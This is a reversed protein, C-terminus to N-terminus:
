GKLLGALKSFRDFTFSENPGAPLSEGPGPNLSDATPADDTEQANTEVGASASQKAFSLENDYWGSQRPETTEKYDADFHVLRAESGDIFIAIMKSGYETTFRSFASDPNSAIGAERITRTNKTYYDSGPITVFDFFKTDDNDLYSLENQESWENGADVSLYWKDNYKRARNDDDLLSVWTGRSIANFNIKWANLAVNNEGEISEYGIAGSVGESQMPPPVVEAVEEPTTETEPQQQRRRQPRSGTAGEDALLSAATNPGVAGDAEIEYKRQLLLVAAETKGGFDGDPEGLNAIAESDTGLRVILAEQLLRVRTGKSGRKLVRGGQTAIATLMAQEQATLTGGAGTATTSPTGSDSTAAPTGDAASADEEDTESGLNVDVEPVPVEEGTATNGAELNSETAAVIWTKAIGRDIIDKLDDSAQVDEPQIGGDIQNWIRVFKERRNRQQRATGENGDGDDDLLKTLKAITRESSRWNLFGTRETANEVAEDLLNMEAEIIERLIRKTVKM